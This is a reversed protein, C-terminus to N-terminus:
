GFALGLRVLFSGYLANSPSGGVHRRDRSREVADAITADGALGLVGYANALGTYALAYGPDLKIADEFFPISAILDPPAGKAINYRGKMYLQYADINETPRKKDNRSLHIKLATAVKESISDQVAFIDSSNADFQDAWLQKGDSTRILKASVRIRQGWTQIAGDLISDVGLENGAGLTDQDLSNYRRVASLPRVTLEDVGSLKLILADAM